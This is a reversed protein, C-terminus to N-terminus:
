AFGWKSFILDQGVANFFCGLYDSGFVTFAINTMRVLVKTLMNVISLIYNNKKYYVKITYVSKKKIISQKKLHIGSRQVPCHFIVDM